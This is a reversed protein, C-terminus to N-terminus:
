FEDDSYDDPDYYDLNPHPFTAVVLSTPLLGKPINSQGTEQFSQHVIDAIVDNFDGDEPITWIHHTLGLSPQLILELINHISNMGNTICEDLSFAETTNQNATGDLIFHWHMEGFNSKSSGEKTLTELLVGIGQLSSTGALQDLFETVPQKIGAIGFEDSLATTLELKEKPLRYIKFPTEFFEEINRKLYEFEM